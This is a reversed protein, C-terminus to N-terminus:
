CLDEELNKLYSIINKVQDIDEGIWFYIWEGNRVMGDAEKMYWSSITNKVRARWFFKPYIEKIKDWIERGIGEGRAIEDVAFKSLLVGWKNLRILACAKYNSELIVRDFDGEIFGPKCKKQFSIEILQRLKNLDINQVGEYVQIASGRRILTGSGKVTFLEKLLSTPSTLSVTFRRNEYKDMLNRISDITAIDEPDIESSSKLNKYDKSLNIISLRTADNVKRIGAKQNLIILKNSKLELLLNLIINEIDGLNENDYLLVPIKKAHISKLIRQKLEKPRRILQIPLSPTEKTFDAKLFTRIYSPLSSNLLLVPYLELQHLVRLDHFVIDWSDLFAESSPYVLAFREPEQSRFFSLYKLGDPSDETVELIKTLLTNAESMM